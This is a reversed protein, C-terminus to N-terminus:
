GTACRSRPPVATARGVADDLEGYTCPGGPFIFAPRSPADLAAAEALAGLTIPNMSLATLSLVAAVLQEDAPAQEGM